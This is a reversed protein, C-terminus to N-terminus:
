RSPTGRSKRRLCFTGVATTVAFWTLLGPEPVVSGPGTIGITFDGFDTVDYGTTVFYYTTGALLSVNDFGATGVGNLDDNGLLVNQLPANPTFANQYLFAYNDWGAPNISKSLLNYTGSVTVNFPLASYRDSTAFSSLQNPVANGNAVPRTWAAGATTSSNYTFTNLPPSTSKKITDTFSGDIPNSIGTTVFYYNTGSLLSIGNFGSRGIAGFDDNGLLINNLPRSADFSGQYLFTYNDWSAPSNSVSLLDYYDTDTVTFSFANYRTKTANPSLAVPTDHGNAIPRQWTPKGVTTGTYTTQAFACHPAALLVTTLIALPRSTRLPFNPM